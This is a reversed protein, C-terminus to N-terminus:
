LNLPELVLQLQLSWVSNNLMAPRRWGPLYLHFMLDARDLSALVSITIDEGLVEPVNTNVLEHHFCLDNARLEVTPKRM